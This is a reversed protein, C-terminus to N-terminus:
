PLLFDTYINSIGLSRLQNATALDNITHAAIKIGAPTWLAIIEPTVLHSWITIYKVGSNAAFTKVNEPTWNPDNYLTYIVSKWPYAQMITTLMAPNYIQIVFRDLVSADIAKATEIMQTFEATVQASDAYKTDTILYVDPYRALLRVVDAFTLRHYKGATLSSQFISATIPETHDDTPIPDHSAVVQGDDALILDIEFLRQGLQYNLLFAEYSNTYTDGLIGGLAHAIYPSKKTWSYDFNYPPQDGPIDIVPSDPDALQPRSRNLSYGIGLTAALTLIIIFIGLILSSFRRHASATPSHQM